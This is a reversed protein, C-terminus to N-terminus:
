LRLPAEKQGGEASRRLWRARRRKVLLLVGGRADRCLAGCGLRLLARGYLCIAFACLLACGRLHHGLPGVVARAPGWSCRALGPPQRSGGRSPANELAGSSPAPAGPGPGLRSLGFSGGLLGYFAEGV